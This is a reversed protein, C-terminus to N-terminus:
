RFLEGQGPLSLYLSKSRSILEYRVRGKQRLDRLIRDPSGPAIFGDVHEYIYQRLDEGRFENGCRDNLFRIIHPAISESVREINESQESM